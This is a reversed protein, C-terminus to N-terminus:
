ITSDLLEQDNNIWQLNYKLRYKIQFPYNILTSMKCASDYNYCPQFQVFGSTIICNLQKLQETHTKTEQRNM